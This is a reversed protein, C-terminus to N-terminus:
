INDVDGGIAYYEVNPFGSMDYRVGVFTICDENNNMCQDFYSEIVKNNLLMMKGEPTDHDINSSNKIEIIIEYGLNLKTKELDAIHSFGKELLNENHKKVQLTLNRIHEDFIKDDDPKILLIEVNETTDYKSYTPQVIKYFNSEYNECNKIGECTRIVQPLHRILLAQDFYATKLRSEWFHSYVKWDRHSEINVIFNGNDDRPIDHAPIISFVISFLIFTIFLYAAVLIGAIFLVTATLLNKVDNKLESYSNM